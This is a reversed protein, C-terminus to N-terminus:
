YIEYFNRKKKNKIIKKLNKLHIKEFNYLQKLYLNQDQHMGVDNSYM